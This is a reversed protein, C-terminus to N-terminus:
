HYFLQRCVDFPQDFNVTTAIISTSSTDMSEDNDSFIKFYKTVKRQTELYGCTKESIRPLKRLLDVSKYRIKPKNIDVAMNVPLSLKQYIRFTPVGNNRCCRCM